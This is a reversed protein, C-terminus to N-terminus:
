AVLYFFFSLLLPTVSIWSDQTQLQTAKRTFELTFNRKLGKEREPM